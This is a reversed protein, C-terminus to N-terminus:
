GSVRIKGLEGLWMRFFQLTLFAMGIPIIVFIWHKPITIARVDTIGHRICEWTHQFGLVAATLCCLMAALFTILNLWPRRGEPIRSYLIDVVVHGKERLLWTTGLFVIWLLAYECTQVVWIPPRAFFYRMIVAYCVAAAIFAIIGGALYFMWDVIRDFARWFGRM